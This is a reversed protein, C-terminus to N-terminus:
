KNTQTHGSSQYTVTLDTVERQCVYLQNFIIMQIELKVNWTIIHNRKQVFVMDKAKLKWFPTHNLSPDAFNLPFYGIKVAWYIWWQSSSYTRTVEAVFCHSGLNLIKKQKM